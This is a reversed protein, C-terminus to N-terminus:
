AGSGRGAPVIKWGRRRAERLLLRDPRVIRPNGVAELVPLDTFSDTYFFSKSLDVDHTRAFDRAWHLKGAAYCVPGIPRGTFRGGEVELRTVLVHEIGLERALPAALYPSSTSLIAVEDGRTRHEEVLQCISPDLHRRLGTHYWKESLDAIEKESIGAILSGARELAAATDLVNRRYQSLYHLVRVVDWTRM